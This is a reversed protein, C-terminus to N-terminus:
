DTAQNSDNYHGDRKVYSAGKAEGSDIHNDISNRDNSADYKNFYSDFTSNIVERVINDKTEKVEENVIKVLESVKITKLFMKKMLLTVKINDLRNIADKRQEKTLVRAGEM